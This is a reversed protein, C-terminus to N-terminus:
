SSRLRLAKFTESLDIHAFDDDSESQEDQGGELSVPSSDSKSLTSLSNTPEDM